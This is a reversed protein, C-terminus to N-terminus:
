PLDSRVVLFAWPVAVLVTGVAVLLALLLSRAVLGALDAEIIRQWREGGAGVARIVLYTIPIAPLLAALLAPVFLVRRARTGAPVRRRGAVPPSTDSADTLQDPRR